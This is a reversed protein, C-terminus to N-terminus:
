DGDKLQSFYWAVKKLESDSFGKSIRDMILSPKRDYKFDLLAQEMKEANQGKLRPVDSKVLSDSRGHCTSCSFGIIKGSIDNAFVPSSLLFFALLIKMPERLLKSKKQDIM